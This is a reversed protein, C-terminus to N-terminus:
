KKREREGQSRADRKSGGNAEGRERKGGERAEDALSIMLAVVVRRRGALRGGREREEKGKFAEMKCEDNEGSEKKRQRAM